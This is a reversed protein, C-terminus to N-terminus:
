SSLSLRPLFPPARRARRVMEKIKEGRGTCKVGFLVDLGVRQQDYRM